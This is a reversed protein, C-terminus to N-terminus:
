INIGKSSFGRVRRQELGFLGLEALSEESSLHKLVQIMKTARQQVRELIGMKKGYQPAWVQVWCELHPSVLASCLPLTVERSRCHHEEEHLGPCRQGGKSCSCTAAEHDVHHGGAAGPEASSSGLGGAGIHGPAQSQGEGPAPSPM